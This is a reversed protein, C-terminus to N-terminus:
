SYTLTYTAVASADGATAGGVPSTYKASFNIQNSGDRLTTVSSPEDLNVASGSEDYLHIAVHQASSAGGNVGAALATPDAGDATGSFTISVGTYTSADCDELLVSFDKGTPAISGAASLATTRVQGMDVTMNASGSSLACAAAVVSGEFNVTGGAVTVPTPAEAEEAYVAGPLM